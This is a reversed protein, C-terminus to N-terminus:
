SEDLSWSSIMLWGDFAVGGLRIMRRGVTGGLSGRRGIGM